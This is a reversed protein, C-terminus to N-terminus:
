KAVVLKVTRIRDAATMRVLYIGSAARRGDDGYGDWSVRHTGSATWGDHLVAIRRGRPDLIELRVMGDGPIAFTLDTGPNLPNPGCRLVLGAAAAPVVYPGFWVTGSGGRAEIWYSLACSPASGDVFEYRGPDHATLRGVPTRTGDGVARWVAYAEHDSTGATSWVLRCATGECRRVSADLFVPTAVAEDHLIWVGNDQDSVYVTDGRACISEALYGTRFRAVEVPAAPDRADLIRVGVRGCALYVFSSDADVGLVSGGWVDFHGVEAAHAPDSIDIIRLGGTKAAVFASSGSIAVHLAVGPLAVCSLRKPATPDSVDVVLCGADDDAVCALGGEVDVGRAIGDTDLSGLLIPSAPDGVDLIQLGDVSGHALYALSDRIATGLAQAFEDGTYRAVERPHAPDSVDVLGFGSMNDALVALNGAVAVDMARDETGTEGIMVPRAADSVDVCMMGTWYSAAAMLSGAVDIALCTGFTGISGAPVPASPDVVDWRQLGIGGCPLLIEGGDYRFGYMNGRAIEVTSVIEPRAPDGVDVMYFGFIDGVACLMGDQVRVATTWPFLPLTGLISPRAPDAIDVVSLGATMDAVYITTDAGSAAVDVAMDGAPTLGVLFPTAPDSVDYVRVTSGDAVVALDGVVDVAWCYGPTNVAGVQVPAHPDSVDVAVLGDESCALLAHDGYMAINRAVGPTALHAIAQPHAPDAVDIIWLGADYDAVLLRGDHLTSAIALSPLTVSGIRAGPFGSSLDLVEVMGGRGHYATEGDMTISLSAGDGLRGIASMNVGEGAALRDPAADRRVFRDSLAGYRTGAASVARPSATLPFALVLFLLLLPLHGAGRVATGSTTTLRKPHRM